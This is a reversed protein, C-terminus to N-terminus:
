WACLLCHGYDADRLCRIGGSRPLYRPHRRAHERGQAQDTDHYVIPKDMTTAEAHASLWMCTETPSLSLGWHLGEGLAPTLALAPSPPCVPWWLGSAVVWRGPRDGAAAAQPRPALGDVSLSTQQPFWRSNEKVYTSLIKFGGDRPTRTVHLCPPAGPVPLGAGLAYEAHFAFLRLPAPVGTSCGGGSGPGGHGQRVRDDCFPCLLQSSIAPVM